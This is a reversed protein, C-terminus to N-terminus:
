MNEYQSSSTLISQKQRPSKSFKHRHFPNAPYTREIQQGRNYGHDQSQRGYELMVMVATFTAQIKSNVTQSVIHYPVAITFKYLVTLRIMVMMVIIATMAAMATVTTHVKSVAANIVQMQLEIHYLSVFRYIQCDRFGGTLRDSVISVATHRSDSM